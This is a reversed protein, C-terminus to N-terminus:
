LCEISANYRTLVSTSGEHAVGIGNTRRKASGVESQRYMGIRLAPSATDTDRLVEAPLRLCQYDTIGCLDSLSCILMKLRYVIRIRLLSMNFEYIIRSSPIDENLLPTPGLTKRAIRM